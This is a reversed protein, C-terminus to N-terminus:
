RGARVADQHHRITPSGRSDPPWDVGIVDIRVPTRQWNNLRILSRAVAILKRQKRAHVAAEPAISAPQDARRRRAKVEVIVIGGAPDRCIIDAEGARVRVNRAIIRYGQKRLYSAAAREGDRGLPDRRTRPSLGLARLVAIFPSRRARSAAVHPPRM